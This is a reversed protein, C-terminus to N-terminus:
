RQGGPGKEREIAAFRFNNKRSTGRLTRYRAAVHLRRREIGFRVVTALFKNSDPLPLPFSHDFALSRPSPSLSFTHSFSPRSSLSDFRNM